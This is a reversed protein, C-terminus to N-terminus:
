NQNLFSIIRNVKSIEMRITHAALSYNNKELEKQVDEVTMDPNQSVIKEVFVGASMSKEKKKKSKKSSEEKQKQSSDTKSKEEKKESKKSSEEKKESKKPSEEKKEASPKEEKKEAIQFTCKEKIEKKMNKVSQDTAVNLEYDEILQLVDKKKYSDLNEETINLVVEEAKEEEENSEEAEENSEVVEEVKEDEENSEEAKETNEDEEESSNEDEENGVVSQAVECGLEALINWVEDSFDDEPLLDVEPPTEGDGAVVKILESKLDKSKQNYNIVDEGDFECVRNIEKAAAELQRKSLAM